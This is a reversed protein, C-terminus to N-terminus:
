ATKKLKELFKGAKLPTPSSNTLINDQSFYPIFVKKTKRIKLNSLFYFLTKSTFTFHNCSASFLLSQHNNPFIQINTTLIIIIHM